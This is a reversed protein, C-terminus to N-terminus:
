WIKLLEKFHDEPTSSEEFDVYGKRWSDLVENSILPIAKKTVEQCTKSKKSTSPSRSVNHGNSSGSALTPPLTSSKRTNLLDELNPPPNQM